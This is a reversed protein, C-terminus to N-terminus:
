ADEEGALLYVVGPAVSRAAAAVQSRTVRGVDEAAQEPTTLTKDLSQGLYWDALTSQLDGYTHFQNVVARRASELDEDSFNEQRVADLQRFIEERAKQANSEEVGSDILLVGKPRDYGSSCYYCLSLKERVNRFLLSTPTGGLLANMLRMAPVASDTGAIPTRLGIVLKSQKLNMRETVEQLPREQGSVRTECSVPARGQLSGFADRFAAAIPSSDGAGQYVLRIQARSLAERWSSVLGGPTLAAVGPISGYRNVAYGEGECLLQECRRRAYLRKENIESEILESLCRKEQGVDEEPFRGDAFVPEFLMSRLLEACRAAIEEGHLAFRDDISVATLTLAQSEGIRSVDAMVRAGYLENLHRQMAAFSPYEACSRRLLFPLIAYSSSTEEKLPLLLAATLRATKFRTDPISLFEAGAAVPQPVPQLDM